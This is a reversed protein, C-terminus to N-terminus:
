STLSNRPSTKEEKEDLKGAEKLYLEMNVMNYILMGLPSFVFRSNFVYLPNRTQNAIPYCRNIAKAYAKDFDQQDNTFIDIEFLTCALTHLLNYRILKQHRESIEKKIFNYTFEIASYEKLYKPLTFSIIKKDECDLFDLAHGLEHVFALTKHPDILNKGVRMEVTDKDIIYRTGSNIGDSFKIEIRNKYKAVRPDYRSILNLVEDPLEFNNSFEFNGRPFPINLVSWDKVKKALETAPFDKHVLSVFRDVDKLFSEFKKKPIIDSVLIYELRNPYGLFKANKNSEVVRKKFIETLQNILPKLNKYNKRRQELSLKTSHLSMFKIGSDKPPLLSLYENTLKSCERSQKIYETVKTM